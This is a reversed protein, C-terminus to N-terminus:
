EDTGDKKRVKPKHKHKLGYEYEEIESNTMNRRDKYFPCEIRFGSHLGMCYKDSYMLCTTQDQWCRGHRNYGM